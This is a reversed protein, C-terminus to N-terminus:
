LMAASHRVTEFKEAPAAGVRQTPSSPSRWQPYAEELEVLERFLRDYEADSVSPADLVYYRYNHAEIEERLAAARASASPPVATVADHRSMPPRDAASCRSRARATRSSTSTACRPSQPRCRSDSQRWLPTTSRAGTTTSSRRM